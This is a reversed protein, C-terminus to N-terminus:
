LEAGQKSKMDRFCEASCFGRADTHETKCTPCIFKQPEKVQPVWGGSFLALDYITNLVAQDKPKM